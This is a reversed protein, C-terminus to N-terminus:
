WRRPYPVALGRTSLSRRIRAELEQGVRWQRGPVTEVYARLRAGDATYEEVGLVKVPRRIAPGLVPDALMRDGQRRIERIVDELSADYPVPVEFLYRSPGKTLNSTVRIEGNPVVHRKGDLGRLVTTRLSVEEVTGGVDAAQVVDGVDYQNEVLLFFGAILDRVLTQAGFGIAVGGVGAAAVLPGVDVGVQGLVVILGVVWVGVAAVAKLLSGVTQARKQRMLPATDLASGGMRNVFRGILIRAGRSAAFAVVLTGLVRILLLVYSPM